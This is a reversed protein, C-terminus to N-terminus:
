YYANKQKKQQGWKTAVTQCPSSPFLIVPRSGQTFSELSLSYSKWKETVESLDRQKRRINYKEAHVRASSPFYSCVAKGRTM